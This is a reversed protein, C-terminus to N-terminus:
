ILDVKKTLFDKFEEMDEIQQIDWISVIWKWLFFQALSKLNKFNHNMLNWREFDIISVQPFNVIINKTPRSLEGHEVNLCDLEYAYKILKKYVTKLQEQNLKSKSLTEWEIFPYKFWDDWYDEIQPVFDVKNKLYKLIAIERQISWKKTSDKAKKLAYKKGNEEIIYVEWRRGSSLLKM